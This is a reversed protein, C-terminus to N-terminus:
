GGSRDWGTFPDWGTAPHPVGDLLIRSADASVVTGVRRFGGPLEVGSPFTALLSHDEGGGLALELDGGLAGSDFDISVGSADAVRAADKALGDSLDLM